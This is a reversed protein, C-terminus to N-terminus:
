QLYLVLTYPLCSLTNRRLDADTILVQNIPPFTESVKDISACAKHAHAGWAMFVVGKAGPIHDDPNFSTPSLRSVVLKLAAM